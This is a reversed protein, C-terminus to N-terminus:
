KGIIGNLVQGAPGEAMSGHFVALKGGLIVVSPKPALSMGAFPSWGARSAVDAQSFVRSEDPDVVMVDARMGPRIEGRDHLGLIRAPNRSLLFSLQLLKVSMQRSMTLAYPVLTDLGPVGGPAHKFDQMKEEFLHPAHDSEINDILGDKVAKLLANRHTQDRVPPYVKITQGLREYDRTSFALHHPTVGVSLRKPKNKKLFEVEQRSSVHLYHCRRGTEETLATVAQLGQLAADTSRKMPHDTIRRAPDQRNLVEQLEGHFLYLTDIADMVHGAQEPPVLLAATSSGFFAKVGTLLGADRVKKIEDLNGPTMGMYFGIDTYTRGQAQRIKHKLADLSTTPPINNPMDFVTTVGSLLAAATGSAIDEKHPWGPDRLHVHIDVAGPMVYKGRCDFEFDAEHGPGVSDILGQDICLDGEIIGNPTVIKANRLVIDM